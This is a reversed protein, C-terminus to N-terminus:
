LGIATNTSSFKLNIGIKKCKIIFNYFTIRLSIRLDSTNTLKKTIKYRIYFISYQYGCINYLNGKRTKQNCM